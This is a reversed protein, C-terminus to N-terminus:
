VNHSNAQPVHLPFTALLSPRAKHLRAHDVFLSLSAVLGCKHHHGWALLLSLSLLPSVMKQTGFKDKSKRERNKEIRGRERKGNRNRVYIFAQAPCTLFREDQKEMPIWTIEASALSLFLFLFFIFCHKKERQILIPFLSSSSFFSNLNWFCLSAGHLLFFHTGNSVNM